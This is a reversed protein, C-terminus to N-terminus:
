YKLSIKVPSDSTAEEAEIHLVLIDIFRPNELFVFDMAIYIDKELFIKDLTLKISKLGFFKSYVYICFIVGGLFTVKGLFHM